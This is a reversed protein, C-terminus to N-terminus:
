ITLRKTKMHEVEIIKAVKEVCEELNDNEVLYDYSSIFKLEEEAQKLRKEITSNSDLGRGVLRSKLIELSPPAIFISVAQPFKEKVQKGGDVEIELIVDDGKSLMNFLAKQPTGYFNGCYETYELFESNEAMKLFNERSTFFYEVGDREGSRPQRTTMSISLEINRKQKRLSSIVTGKGIGSPGSLVILIGKNIEEM